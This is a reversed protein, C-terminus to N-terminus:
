QIHVAALRRKVQAIGRMWPATGANARVARNMFIILLRLYTM